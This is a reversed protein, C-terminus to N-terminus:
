LFCRKLILKVAEHDLRFQSVVQGEFELVPIRVAYKERWDPRTDIDHVAVDAKGRLLPLLQDILVECLHCGQRSFVHFTAM